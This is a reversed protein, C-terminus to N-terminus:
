VYDGWKSYYRKIRYINHKKAEKTWLEILKILQQKARLLDRGFIRIEMKTKYPKLKIGNGEVYTNSTWQEQGHKLMVVDLLCDKTSSMIERLFYRADGPNKAKFGIEVFVDWTNSPLVGELKSVLKTM